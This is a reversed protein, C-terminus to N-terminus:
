QDRLGPWVERNFYEVVERPGSYHMAAPDCLDQGVPCGDVFDVSLFGPPRGLAPGCSKEYRDLIFAATNVEDPRFATSVEPCDWGNMLKPGSLHYMLLMKGDYSSLEGKLHCDDDGPLISDYSNGRFYSGGPAFREYGPDAFVPLRQGNEVMWRLTPWAGEAAVNWRDASPNYIEDALTRGGAMAVAEFPALLAAEDAVYDELQLTVVEQPHADLFAAIVELEQQLTQFELQACKPLPVERAGHCLYVVDPAAPDGGNWLYVDLQFARVGHELQQAISSAQNVCLGNEPAPQDWDFYAFANHAMLWTMQDYRVDLDVDGPGVISDGDDSCAPVLLLLLTLGAFALRTWTIRM